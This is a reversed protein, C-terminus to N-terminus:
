VREDGSDGQEKGKAVVQNEEVMAGIEKLAAEISIRENHAKEIANIIKEKSLKFKVTAKLVFETQNNSLNNENCIGIVERLSVM